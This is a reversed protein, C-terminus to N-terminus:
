MIVHKMVIITEGGVVQLLHRILQAVSKSSTRSRHRNWGRHIVSMKSSESCSIVHVGLLHFSSKRKPKRTDISIIKKTGSLVIEYGHLAIGTRPSPLCQSQPFLCGSGRFKPIGTTTPM